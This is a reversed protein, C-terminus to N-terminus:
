WKAARDAASRALEELGGDPDLPESWTQLGRYACIRKCLEQLIKVSNAYEAYADARKVDWRTAQERRWRSRESVSTILFTALAGVVVGILAPAQRILESMM